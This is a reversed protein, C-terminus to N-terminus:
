GRSEINIRLRSGRFDTPNQKGPEPHSARQSVSQGVTRVATACSRGGPVPQAICQGVGQVGVSLGLRLPEAVDPSRHVFQGHGHVDM